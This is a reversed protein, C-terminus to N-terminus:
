TLPLSAKFPKYAQLRCGAELDNKLSFYVKYNKVPGNATRVSIAMTNAERSPRVVYNFNSLYDQSQLLSAANSRDTERFADLAASYGREWTLYNSPVEGKSGTRPNFAIIWGDDNGFPHPQLTQLIDGARFPLDGTQKADLDYLAFAWNASTQMILHTFHYLRLSYAIRSEAKLLQLSKMRTEFCLLTLVHSGWGDLLLESKIIRLCPAVVPHPFVKFPKYTHLKCGPEIERGRSPRVVYNFNSLYDQSQLLAYAGFRDTERFADLVASYGRERTIYNSPVVGQCGTRPNSADAWGVDSTTPHFRLI